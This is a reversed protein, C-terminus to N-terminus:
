GLRDLSSTRCSPSRRTIREGRWVMAILDAERIKLAALEEATVPVFAPAPPPPWTSRDRLQRLMVALRDRPDGLM